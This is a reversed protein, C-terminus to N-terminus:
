DKATDPIEGPVPCWHWVTVLNFKPGAHAKKPHALGAEELLHLLDLMTHKSVGTEDMLCQVTKPGDMLAVIVSLTKRRFKGNAQPCCAM